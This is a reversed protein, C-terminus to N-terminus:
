EELRKYYLSKSLIYYPIKENYELLVLYVVLSFPKNLFIETNKLLSIPDKQQIFVKELFCFNKWFM